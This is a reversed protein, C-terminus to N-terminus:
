DSNKYQYVIVRENVIVKGNRTFGSSQSSKIKKDLEPKDTEETKVIQQRSADFDDGEKAAFEDVNQLELQDKIDDTAYMYEDRLNEVSMEFFKSSSATKKMNLYLKIFAKLLQETFRDALDQKFYELEKHLKNIMEDKVNIQNKILHEMMESQEKINLLIEELECSSEDEKEKSESTSSFNEVPEAKFGDM